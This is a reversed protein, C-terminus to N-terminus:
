PKVGARTHPEEFVLGARDDPPGADGDGVEAEGGRSVLRAGRRLPDAPRRDDLGLDQGAPAHLRPADLEGVGGRLGGLVGLRDQPELDAPVHRTPDQHVRAGLNLLLVVRADDPVAQALAGHHDERRDPADVDLLHGLLLGVLDAAAVERRDLGEAVEHGLLHDGGGPDGAAGQGPDRRDKSAERPQEELAVHGEGLDVGQALELVAREHREVGVHVHLVLRPRALLLQEGVEAHAVLLRALRALGGRKLQGALLHVAHVV